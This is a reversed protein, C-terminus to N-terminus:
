LLMTKNTIGFKPLTEKMDSTAEKQTSLPQLSKIWADAFMGKSFWVPCEWEWTDDLRHILTKRYSIIKKMNDREEGSRSHYGSESIRHAAINM